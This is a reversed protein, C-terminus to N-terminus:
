KQLHGAAVKKKVALTTRSQSSAGAERTMVHKGLIKQLHGAAVAGIFRFRYPAWTQGRVPEPCIRTDGLKVHYDLIIIILTSSIQVRVPGLNPGV